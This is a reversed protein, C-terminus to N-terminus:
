KKNQRSPNLLLERAEEPTYSIGIPSRPASLSWCNKNTQIYTDTYPNALVRSLWEEYYYRNHTKIPIDVRILYSARAWWYNWWIWGAPSATSGVKDIKPHKEFIHLVRKWSAIVTKHLHIEQKERIGRFRTIGKSHFYLLYHNPSGNAYALAHVLQIGPYEHCNENHIHFVVKHSSSFCQRVQEQITANYGEPVSLVIHLTAEDLLGTAVLDQMQARVLQPGHTPNVFLNAFYVIDIVFSPAQNNNQEPIFIYTPQQFHLKYVFLLLTIFMLLLLFMLKQLTLYELRTM